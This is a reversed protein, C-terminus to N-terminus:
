AGEYNLLKPTEGVDKFGEYSINTNKRKPHWCHFCLPEELFTRLLPQGDSIKEPLTLFFIMTLIYKCLAIEPNM